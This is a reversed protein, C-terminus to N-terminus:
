LGKTGTIFVKHIETIQKSFIIERCETLDVSLLLGLIIFYTSDLQLNLKEKCYM